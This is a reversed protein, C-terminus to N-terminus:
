SDGVQDSEESLPEIRPLYLDFCSGSGPTSTVIIHGEHQHVIGHVVALGMGTGRGVEKTTFFPDFIKALIAPDIGSGTDSVAIKVYDGSFHKVCSSCLLEDVQLAEITIKIEGKGEMADRANICLNMILQHLRVPDVLVYLLEAGSKLTIAVSSPLISKLLTAVETVLSQVAVVEQRHSGQRSYDLMQRILGRARDGARSIESLYKKIKEADNKAAMETALDAYGIIATLINNFDHAIGGALRGIAEMKHAQRLRYEYSEREREARQREQQLTESLRKASLLRRVRQLLVPWHVPKSIFDTAGTQFAREVSRNDNLSTIILLPIEREKLLPALQEAAEFGDMQPMIADMLILDPPLRGCVELAEKGSAAYEVEYGERLLTSGVVLRMAEDDDAVLLRPKLGSNAGSEGM